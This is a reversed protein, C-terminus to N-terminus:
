SQVVLCNLANAALCLAHYNCGIVITFTLNYNGALNLSYICSTGGKFRGTCSPRKRKCDIASKVRWKHLRGPYFQGFCNLGGAERGRNARYILINIGFRMGVRCLYLLVQKLLKSSRYSPCLANLCHNCIAGVM